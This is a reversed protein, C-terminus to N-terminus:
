KQNRTLPFLRYCQTVFDMIQFDRKITENLNINQQLKRTQTFRFIELIWTKKQFGTLAIKVALQTHKISLYMLNVTSHTHIHISYSARRKKNTKNNCNYFLNQHTIIKQFCM